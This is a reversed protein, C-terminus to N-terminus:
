TEPMGIVFGTVSQTSAVGLSTSLLSAATLLV